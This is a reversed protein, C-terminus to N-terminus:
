YKKCNERSNWYGKGYNVFIEEDPFIDKIAIVIMKEDTVFNWQANNNDSHNYISGFGLMISSNSADEKNLKEPMSIVYDKLITKDIDDYSVYSILPVEEIISGEPIYENAFIGRNHVSSKRLEIQPKKFESIILSRLSSWIISLIILLSIWFLILSPLVVSSISNM